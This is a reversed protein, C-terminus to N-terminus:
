PRVGHQHETWAIETELAVIVAYVSPAVAGCDYRARLSNLQSRLAAVFRQQNGPLDSNYTM